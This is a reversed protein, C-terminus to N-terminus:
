VKHYWLIDLSTDANSGYMRNLKPSTIKEIWNRAIMEFDPSSDWNKSKFYFYFHMNVFNISCVPPLSAILLTAHYNWDCVCFFTHSVWKTNKVQIINFHIYPCHAKFVFSPLPLPSALPMTLHAMVMSQCPFFMPFFGTPEVKM